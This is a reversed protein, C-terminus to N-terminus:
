QAAEQQQQELEIGNIELFQNLMDKANVGSSTITNFFLDFSQKFEPNSIADYWKALTQADESFGSTNGMTGGGKLATLLAPAQALLGSLVEPTIAGKPILGGLAGGNREDTLERDRDKIETELEKIKLEYEHKQDKLSDKLTERQGRLDEIQKELQNMRFKLEQIMNLKEQYLLSQAGASYPNMRQELSLNSGQNEEEIGQMTTHKINKENPQSAYNSNYFENKRCKDSCYKRTRGVRKGSVEIKCNRNACVM